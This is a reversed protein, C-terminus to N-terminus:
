KSLNIEFYDFNDISKFEIYQPTCTGMYRVKSQCDFKAGPKIKYKDLFKPGPSISDGLVLNYETWFKNFLIKSLFNSWTTPTFKYLIEFGDYGLGNSARISEATKSVSIIECTGPYTHFKCSGGFIPPIVTTSIDSSTSTKQSISNINSRFLILSSVVLAMLILGSIVLWLVKLKM